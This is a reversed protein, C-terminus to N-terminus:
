FPIAFGMNLMLTKKNNHQHDTSETWMNKQIHRHFDIYMGNHPSHLIHFTEALLCLFRSLIDAQISIHVWHLDITFPAPAIGGWATETM